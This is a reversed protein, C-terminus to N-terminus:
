LETKQSPLKLKDILKSSMLLLCGATYNITPTLTLNIPLYHRGCHVFEICQIAPESKTSDVADGVSFCIIRWKRKLFFVKQTEFCIM